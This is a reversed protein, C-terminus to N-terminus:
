GGSAAASISKWTLAMSPDATLRAVAETMPIPRALHYGQAFDVGIQKLACVTEANEVSEAITKIGMVKGIHFIAEVVAYDINDTAMGRVFAGDIKLYEVPLNRLYGFSSMGSGFDDLSMPCGLERLQGMLEAARSLNGIAATETLEFGV